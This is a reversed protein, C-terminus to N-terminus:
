MMASIHMPPGKHSTAPQQAHIAHLKTIQHPPKCLLGRGWCWRAGSWYETVGGTGRKGSGRTRERVSSCGPPTSRPPSSGDQRFHRGTSSGRWRRRPWPCCDASRWLQFRVPDTRRCSPERTVGQWKHKPGHNMKTGDTGKATQKGLMGESLNERCLKRWYSTECHSCPYAQCTNTHHHWCYTFWMSVFM